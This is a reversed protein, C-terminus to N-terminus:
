LYRRNMEKHMAEAILYASKALQPIGKETLMTQANHHRSGDWIILASMAERAVKDLYKYDEEDYKM